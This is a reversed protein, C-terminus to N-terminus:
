PPMHKSGKTPLFKSVAHSGRKLNVGKAQGRWEEVKLNVGKAQGRWEEVKLNV